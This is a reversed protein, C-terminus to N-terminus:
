TLLSISLISIFTRLFSRSQSAIEVCAKILWLQNVTLLNLRESPSGWCFFGFFIQLRKNMLNSTDNFFRSSHFCLTPRRLVQSFSSVLHLDHCRTWLIRGSGAPHALAAALALVVLLVVRLIVRWNSISMIAFNGLKSLRLILGQFGYKYM